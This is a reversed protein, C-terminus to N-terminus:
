QGVMPRPEAADLTFAIADRARRIAAARTADGGVIGLSPVRFGWGRSEPDYALEVAFRAEPALEAARRGVTAAM